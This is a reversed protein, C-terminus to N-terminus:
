DMDAKQTHVMELEFLDDRLQKRKGTFLFGHKQYFALAPANNSLVWLTPVADCQQLAFQLLMTGYGKRQAQPLVYLNEILNGCVSVIGLPSDEQLMYLKKGAAIEHRLYEQQREPTHSLVFDESCFSRHSDQWSVAHVRAALPLNSEDISVIM